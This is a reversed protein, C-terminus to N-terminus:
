TLPLSKAFKVANKLVQLLKVLIATALLPVTVILNVFFDRYQGILLSRPLLVPQANTGLFRQLNYYGKAGAIVAM